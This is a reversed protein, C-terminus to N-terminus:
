KILVHKFESSENLLSVIPSPRIDYKNFDDKSVEVFGNPLKDTFIDDIKYVFCVEHVKEKPTSYLNEIISCLTLDKVEMGIEELIERKIAEKSTENIM